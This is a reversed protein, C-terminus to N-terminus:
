AHWPAIVWPPVLSTVTACPVMGALPAAAAATSLRVATAPVSGVKRVTYGVDEVPVQEPSGPTEVILTAVPATSALRTM